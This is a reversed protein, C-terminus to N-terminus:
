NLPAGLGFEDGVPSFGQPNFPPIRMKPAYRGCNRPIRDDSDAFGENSDDPLGGLEADNGQTPGRNSGFEPGENSEYPAERAALHIQADDGMQSPGPNEIVEDNINEDALAGYGEGFTEFNDGTKNIMSTNFFVITLLIAIIMGGPLIELACLAILILFLLRFIWNHFLDVIFNLVVDKKSLKSSINIYLLYIVIVCSITLTTTNFMPLFNKPKVRDM